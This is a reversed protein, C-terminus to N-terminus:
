EHTDSQETEETSKILWTTSNSYSWKEITLQDSSEGVDRIVNSIQRTGPEIEEAIERSKLYEFGDGIEEVLYEEVKQAITANDLPTTSETTSM